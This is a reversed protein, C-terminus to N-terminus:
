YSVSSTSWPQRHSLQISEMTILLLNGRTRNGGSPSGFGLSGSGNKNRTMSLEEERSGAKARILSGFRASSARSTWVKRETKRWLKTRISDGGGPCCSAEWLKTHLSFSKHQWFVCCKVSFQLLISCNTCKGPITEAKALLSAQLLQLVTCRIANTKIVAANHCCRFRLLALIIVVNTWCHIHLLQRDNRSGGPPWM